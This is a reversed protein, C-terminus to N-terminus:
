DYAGARGVALIRHEIVNRAKAANLLLNLVFYEDNRANVCILGARGAVAVLAHEMLGVWVARRIHEAAQYCYALHVHLHDGLGAKGARVLHQVRFIVVVQRVHEAIDGDACSRYLILQVPERGAAKVQRDAHFVGRAAVEGDHHVGDGCGLM